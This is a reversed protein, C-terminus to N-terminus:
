FMYPGIWCPEMKGGKRTINKMQRKYVTDGVKFEFSKIGKAKRKQYQIKRNHRKLMVWCRFHEYHYTRFVKDFVIDYCKKM